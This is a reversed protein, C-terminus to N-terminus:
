HEEPLTLWSGWEEITEEPTLKMFGGTPVFTLEGFFVRGKVDYLDVRVFPFDKALDAAIKKMEDFNEPQSPPPTKHGHTGLTVPLLNWDTDFIDVYFCVEGNEGDSAAQLTRPQGNFCYFKYDRMNDSLYEEVFFGKKIFRYQVECFFRWYDENLWISLQKIVENVSQKAKDRIVFNYGCGHNCKVVFKEPLSEWISRLAEPDTFIGSLLPASM